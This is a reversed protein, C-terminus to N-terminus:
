WFSGGIDSPIVLKRGAEGNDEHCPIFQRHYNVFGETVPGKSDEGARSNLAINFYHNSFLHVTSKTGRHRKM